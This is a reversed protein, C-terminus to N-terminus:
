DQWLRTKIKNKRGTNQSRTVTSSPNVHVQSMCKCRVKESQSFSDEQCPEPLAWGVASGAGGPRLPGRPRHSATVRRYGASCM